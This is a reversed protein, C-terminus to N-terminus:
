QTFVGEKILLIQVAQEIDLGSVVGVYIQAVAGSSDLLLIYPRWARNYEVANQLNVTAPDDIDLFAFPIYQNYKNELGHVVPAM